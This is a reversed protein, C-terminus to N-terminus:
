NKNSLKAVRSEAMKILFDYDIDLNHINYSDLSELLVWNRPGTSPAKKISSDSSSGKMYISVGNKNRTPVTRIVKTEFIYNINWYDMESKNANVVKNLKYYKYDSHVQNTTKVVKSTRKEGIFMYEYSENYIALQFMSIDTCEMITDKIPKGNFLKEFVALQVIPYAKKIRKNNYDGCLKTGVADLKGNQYEKVYNNVNAQYLQKIPDSDFKIGIIESLEDRLRAHVEVLHKPVALYVGDTNTQLIKIGHKYLKNAYAILILQGTATVSHQMLPDYIPSNKSGSQGYLANILLKLTIELFQKPRLAKEEVRMALYKILRELGANRSLLKFVVMMGPYYSEGDDHYLIYDVLTQPNISKLTDHVSHVGGNGVTVVNEFIHFTFLKPNNKKFERFNAADVSTFLNIINHPVNEYIYPQIAEPVKYYEGVGDYNEKSRNEVSLAGLKVMTNKLVTSIDMDALEIFKLKINYENAMEDSMLRLLNYDVEAKEILSKGEINIGRGKALSYGYLGAGERDFDAIDCFLFQNWYSLNPEQNTYINLSKPDLKPNKVLHHFWPLDRFKIDLGVIIKGAMQRGIEPLKDEFEGYSCSLDIEDNKLMIYYDSDTIYMKLYIFKDKIDEYTM